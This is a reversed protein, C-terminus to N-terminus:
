KGLGSSVAVVSSVQHREQHRIFRWGVLELGRSVGTVMWLGQQIQGGWCVSGGFM